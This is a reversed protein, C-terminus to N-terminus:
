SKKSKQEQKNKKELKTEPKWFIYTIIGFIVAFIAPELVYDGLTYTFDSHTLVQTWILDFLPWIVMAAIFTAIAIVISSKIRNKRIKDLM